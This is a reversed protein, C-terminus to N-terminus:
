TIGLRRARARQRQEPSRMSQRKQATQQTPRREQNAASRITAFSERDSLGVQSACAMLEGEVEQFPRGHDLLRCAAWFLRNNREGEGAQRLIDVISGAAGLATTPLLTPLETTRQKKATALEVLWDPAPLIPFNAFIGDVMCGVWRYRDGCPHISPPVIVYGGDGRVDIDPGVKGASNSVTLGYPLAFFYQWGGSGTRQQRTRPMPGFTAVINRMSEAGVKGTKTDVDLVWMESIAGTALGINADPVRQWYRRIRDPDTTASKYGHPTAPTKQRPHCPFVRWGCRAYEIAADFPTRTM